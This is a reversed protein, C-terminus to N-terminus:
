WPDLNVGHERRHSPGHSVSRGEPAVAYSIGTDSRLNYVGDFLLRRHAPAFTTRTDVAVAMLQTENRYYLERGDPSWHPEEGGNTSVQWRGGGSSMDRVYVEARGSEDSQYALWRGIRPGPAVTITSPQTVLTEPKANAVLALTVVEGKGGAAASARTISCRPREM